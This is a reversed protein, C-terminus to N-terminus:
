DGPVVPHTVCIPMFNLPEFLESRSLYLSFDKSCEGTLLKGALMFLWCIMTTDLRKGVVGSGRREGGGSGMERQLSM